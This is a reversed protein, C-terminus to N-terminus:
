SRFDGKALDIDARGGFASWLDAIDMEQVSVDAEGVFAFMHSGFVSMWFHAPASM